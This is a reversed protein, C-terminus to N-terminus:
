NSTASSSFIGSGRLQNNGKTNLLVLDKERGKRGLKSCTVCGAAKVFALNETEGLKIIRSAVEFLAQKEPTNQRQQM